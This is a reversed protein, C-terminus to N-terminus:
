ATNWFMVAIMGALTMVNILVGLVGNMIFSQINEIDDTVRSILDGTHEPKLPRKDLPTAM